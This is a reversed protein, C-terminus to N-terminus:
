STRMNPVTRLVLHQPQSRGAFAFSLLMCRRRRIGACCRCDGCGGAARRRSYNVHGKAAHWMEAVGEIGEAGAHGRRLRAEVPKTASFWLMRRGEAAGLSLDIELRGDRYVALQAGSHWGRALHDRAVAEVRQRGSESLGPM